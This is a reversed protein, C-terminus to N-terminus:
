SNGFLITFVEKSKISSDLFKNWIKRAIVHAEDDKKLYGLSIM